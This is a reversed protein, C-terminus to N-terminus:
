CELSALIRHWGPEKGIPRMTPQGPRQRNPTNSNLQIAEDLILVNCEDCHVTPTQAHPRTIEPAIAATYNARRTLKVEAGTLILEM